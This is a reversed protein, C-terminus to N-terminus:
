VNGDEEMPFVKYDRVKAGDFECEDKFYLETDKAGNKLLFELDQESVDKIVETIEATFTITVEKYHKM